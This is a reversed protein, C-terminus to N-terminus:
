EGAVSEGGRACLRFRGGGSIAVQGVGKVQALKQQIVTAAIGYMEGSSMTKSRLALFMIPSDAPNAKRWSPNQPLNPPLQARAANIAAQVDRAAADINRNLDFQLTVTTSGLNSSSTMENVGPLRDWNGNWRRPWQRRWPKRARVPCARM